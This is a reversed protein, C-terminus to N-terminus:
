REGKKLSAILVTLGDDFRYQPSAAVSQGDLKRIHEVVPSALTQALKHNEDTPLDSVVLIIHKPTQFAGLSLNSLNAEQLGALSVDDSPLNGIKLARKDRETVLLSILSGDRTYVLHAFRRGDPACVHASHLRLGEAGSAAVKELGVYAPEVTSPMVASRTAQIFKPACKHHDSVAESLLTDSLEFSQVPTTQSKLFPLMVVAAVILVAATVTIPIAFRLDFLSTWRQRRGILSESASIEARLRARLRECAEESLRDQSCARRLSERM